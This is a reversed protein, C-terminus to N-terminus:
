KIITVSGSMLMSKSEDDNSRIYELTWFYVGEPVPKGMSLGNWGKEVDHTEFLKEGWRNFIQLYATKIGKFKIPIFVNNLLDKNPTFVNPMKLESEDCNALTIEVTDSSECGRLSTSKVWYIGEQNIDRILETSHDDWVIQTGNTQATLRIQKGECISTDNGLSISPSPELSITISDRAEGCDNQEMLWYEGPNNVVFNIINFSDQWQKDLTSPIMNQLTIQDGDCLTTDNGLNVQPRPSVILNRMVISDCGNINYLSDPFLGSTKQFVGSISISDGLCMLTDKQELSLCISSDKFHQTIDKSSINESWTIFNNNKPPHNFSGTTLSIPSVNLPSIFTECGKLNSSTDSTLLIPFINDNNKEVGSFVLITGNSLFTFDIINTPVFSKNRPALSVYSGKPISKTWLLSGSTDIKSLFGEGSTVGKGCLYIENNIAKISYLKTRTDSPYSYRKAWIPNLNTDTKLLVNHDLDPDFLSPLSTAMVFYCYNDSYISNPGYDGYFCWLSRDKNSLRNTSLIDGKADLKMFFASRNIGNSIVADDYSIIINGSPLEILKNGTGTGGYERFWIVNLNSDLKTLVSMDGWVGILYGGDISQVAQIPYTRLGNNNNSRKIISNKIITGNQTIEFAMIGGDTQSYNTTMGIISYNGSKKRFVNIVSELGLDGYTLASTVAGCFDLKTFLIDQNSNGVANTESSVGFVDYGNSTEFLKSFSSQGPLKYVKNLGQARLSFSHFLIFAITTFKFIRM